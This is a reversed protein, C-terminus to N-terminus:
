RYSNSGILQTQNPPKSWPKVQPLILRPLLARLETCQATYASASPSLRFFLRRYSFRHPTADTGGVAAQRFLCGLQSTRSLFAWAEQLLLIFQFQQEDRAEAEPLPNLLRLATKLTNRWGQKDNVTMVGSDTLRRFREESLGDRFM